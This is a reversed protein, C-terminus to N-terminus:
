DVMVIVNWSELDLKVVQCRYFNSIFSHWCLIFSVPRINPRESGEPASAVALPQADNQVAPTLAMSNEDEQAVNQMRKAALRAKERSGWGNAVM